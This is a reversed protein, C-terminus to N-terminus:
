RRRRRKRRRGSKRVPTCLELVRYPQEQNAAYDLIEMRMDDSIPWRAPVCHNNEDALTSGVPLPPLEPGISQLNPTMDRLMPMAQLNTACQIDSLGFDWAWEIMARLLRSRGQRHAEASMNSPRMYYCTAEYIDPACPQASLSSSQPYLEAILSRTMTPLLCAYGEVGGHSTLDYFCVAGDVADFNEAIGHSCVISQVQGSAVESPRPRFLADLLKQQAASVGVSVAVAM